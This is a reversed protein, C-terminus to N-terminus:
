VNITPAEKNSRFAVYSIPRYYFLCCFNFTNRDVGNSSTPLLRKVVATIIENAGGAVLM